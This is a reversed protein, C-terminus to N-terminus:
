KSVLLSRFRDYNGKYLVYRPRNATIGLSANCNVEWTLINHYCYALIERVEVEEVM